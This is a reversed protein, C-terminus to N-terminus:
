KLVLSLLLVISVCAANSARSVLERLAKVAELLIKKEKAWSNQLEQITNPDTGAIQYANVLQAIKEAESQLDNLISQPILASYFKGRSKFIDCRSKSSARIFDRELSFIRGLKQPFSHSTTKVVAKSTYGLM